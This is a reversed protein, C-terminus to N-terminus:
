FRRWISVSIAREEAMRHASLTGLAGVQVSSRRGLPRVISLQVRHNYHGEEHPPGGSWIAYSQVILETEWLLEAGAAVDFRIEDGVREDRWRHALGADIFGTEGVSRGLLLRAEVDGGGEGFESNNWNEGPGRFTVLAQGSLAWRGQRMLSVRAALESSSFDRLAIQRVEDRAVTAGDINQFAVRGVLTVDDTVGHEVYWSLEHKILTTDLALDLRHLATASILLTEGGDRTWAGAEAPADTATLCAAVLAARVPISPRHAM